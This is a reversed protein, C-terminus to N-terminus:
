HFSGRPSPIPQRHTRAQNSRRIRGIRWVRWPRALLVMSELAIHGCHNEAMSRSDDIALMVQYKRSSPRSRRLWIKDVLVRPDHVSYDKAHKVTKRNQLRGPSSERADTRPDLAVKRRAGRVADDHATRAKAVLRPGQGPSAERIIKEGSPSVANRRPARASSTRATLERKVDNSSSGISTNELQLAITSRFQSM